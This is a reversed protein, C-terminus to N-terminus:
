LLLLLEEPQELENLLQIKKLLEDDEFNKIYFDVSSNYKFLRLIYADNGIKKVHKYVETSVFMKYPINEDLLNVIDKLIKDTYIPEKAMVFNIIQSLIDKDISVISEPKLILRDAIIVISDDFYIYKDGVFSLKLFYNKFNSEYFYGVEANDKNDVSIVNNGYVIFLVYKNHIKIKM